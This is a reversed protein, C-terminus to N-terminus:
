DNDHVKRFRALSRTLDMSARRAAGSVTTGTVFYSDPRGGFDKAWLRAAQKAKEAAAIFRRAEAIAGDVRKITLM